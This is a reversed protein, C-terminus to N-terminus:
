LLFREELRQRRGNRAAELAIEVESGGNNGVAILEIGSNMLM